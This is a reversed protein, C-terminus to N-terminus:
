SRSARKEGVTRKLIRKLGQNSVEVQGSTQPHYATSLRHTVGYKLMVKSFQENCFHTGRDSIIARPTGFQAFLSKLIKVVVRADNTPLAKAEVWKSFYDVAGLIYKNGRSSSFPGMFDIGWVDFFEYVQIANQPMEDRQSIRGQRQYADCRETFLPGLSVAMLYKRLSSIPVMIDGPPDPLKDTGGLYAYELHSPLEKLVLKSPENISTKITKIEEVNLEKSPFPSLSPDNNLLEELLRIDGELDLDIDNIGLPISESTLFAEIKELIFRRWAVDIVDIRNILEADNYSYKLTQGVKFTIAEDVRLTLEEGYVDILARRIRLFPRGLILPVSPDVVYDVVVFDTPFLFKGVKVFVDKAIGAPRTTSRDALELIMQTSTLEPLFLKKWISLTMLNISAGLDVLALCEDFELFDCPILFKDPDGLKKTLKKLIVMSCNENVSTTALDFLKEKNNLLSKFMLSFKPMHLVADAFSLEFHQNEKSLPLPSVSLGALTVGSRTTVVKLDEQPNPITNSPLSSTGSSSATNMKMFRCFMNKLELNSNTLSTMQTQMNKMVADNTKMYAQFDGVQAVVQPQHTPAQYTPVQNFNNGRGGSNYNGTTAYATEQTYGGIAPCEIFSYPGGCTECKTDVYKITQFQRMMESFNKNMMELQRVVEPSTTTSISYINRSTEDRITSTDWHNHHATMNEILEYCEEPIKQNFTGGAAVNITDRHSLTLGNYFTNIQTVLLMNHSPCQDISLKYREWAEFLSEHPKQKFKTIENRLKTGMSPPFYKSLFKRMMDDFSHISNRPLHDYWAIAHHTLSYRFFPYVFPTMPSWLEEMMRPAQGNPRVMPPLGNQPPLEQNHNNNMVEEFDFLSSQQGVITVWLKKAVRTKERRRGLHSRKTLILSDVDEKEVNKLDVLRGGVVFSSKFRSSSSAKMKARNHGIPQVERVEVGSADAEENFNLGGHALGSTTKSTESWFGRAKIANGRVSNESLDCWVKCLTVYKATTWPKSAEQNDIKM